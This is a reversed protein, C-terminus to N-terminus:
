LPGQKWDSLITEMEITKPSRRENYTVTSTVILIKEQMPLTGQLSVEPTANIKKSLPIIEERISITRIFRANSMAEDFGDASILQWPSQVTEGPALAHIDNEIIHYTGTKLGSNWAKNQLWNSDRINRIIELGEEAQNHAILENTTISGMRISSRTVEAAATIVLTIVAIGIIVEILSFGETGRLTDNKPPKKHNKKTKM